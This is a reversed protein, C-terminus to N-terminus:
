AGTMELWVQDVAEAMRRSSQVPPESPDADGRLQVSLNLAADRRVCVLTGDAPRNQTLDIVLDSVDAGELAMSSTAAYACNTTVTGPVEVFGFLGNTAQFYAMSHLMPLHQPGNVATLSIQGSPTWYIMEIGDGGYAARYQPVEDAALGRVDAATSSDSALDARTGGMVSGPLSDVGLAAVNGPTAPGALSFQVFWAGVGAVVAGVVLGILVSRGRARQATMPARWNASAPSSSSAAQPEVLAPMQVTDTTMSGSGPTTIAGVARSPEATEYQPTVVQGCRSCFAAAGHLRQGCRTCFVSQPENPPNVLMM